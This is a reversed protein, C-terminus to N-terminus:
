LRIRFEGTEGRAPEWSTNVDTVRSSPAGTRLRELLAELDSRSGEAVVSVGGDPENRVWGSLGLRKAETRVFYRFGVGQVRGRVHAILRQM